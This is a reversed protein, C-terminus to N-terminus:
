SSYFNYIDAQLKENRKQHENSNPDAEKIRRTFQRWVTGYGISKIGTVAAVLGAIGIEPSTGDASEFIELGLAQTAIAGGLALTGIATNRICRKLALEARRATDAEFRDRFYTDTQRVVDLAMLAAEEAHLARNGTWAITNPIFPTDEDQFQWSGQLELPFSRPIQLGRRTAEEVPLTPMLRYAPTDDDWIDGPGTIIDIAM